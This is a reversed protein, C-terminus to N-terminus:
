ADCRAQRSRLHQLAVSPVVAFAPMNPAWLAKAFFVLPSSPFTPLAPIIPPLASSSTTLAAVPAVNCCTKVPAVNVLAVVAAFDCSANVPAVNVFSVSYLAVDLAVDHLVGFTVVALAVTSASSVPVFVPPSSMPLSFETSSPVVPVVNAVDDHLNGLGM